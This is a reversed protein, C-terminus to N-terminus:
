DDHGRWWRIDKLLLETDVNKWSGVAARAAQEQEEKSVKPRLDDLAPRDETWVSASKLKRRSVVKRKESGVEGRGAGIPESRAQEPLSARENGSEGEHGRWWRIDAKLQEAEADSLTGASREIAEQMARADRPEHLVRRVIEEELEERTYDKLEKAAM